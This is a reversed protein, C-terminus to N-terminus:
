RNEILPVIKQHLVLLNEELVRSWLIYLSNLISFLGSVAFMKKELSKVVFGSLLVALYLRSGIAVKESGSGTSNLRALIASDQSRLSELLEVRLTVSKQNLGDFIAQKFSIYLNFVFALFCLMLLIEENVVIFEFLWCFTLFISFFALNLVM